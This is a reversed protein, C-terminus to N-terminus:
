DEGEIGYIRNRERLKEMYQEMYQKALAKALRKKAEESEIEEFEEDGIVYIFKIRENYKKRQTEKKM